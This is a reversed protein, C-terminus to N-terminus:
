RHTRRGLDRKARAMTMILRQLDIPIPPGASM